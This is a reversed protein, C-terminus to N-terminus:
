SSFALQLDNLVQEENEPYIFKAFSMKGIEEIYHRQNPRVPSRESLKVELMAWCGNAFLILLDPIGQTQAPDNKMVRCKPFRKKIKKILEAQYAAETKM